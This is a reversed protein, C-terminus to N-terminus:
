LYMCVCVNLGSSPLLLSKGQRLLHGELLTQLDQSSWQSSVHFFVTSLTDAKDDEVESVVDTVKFSTMTTSPAIPSSKKNNGLLHSILSKRWNTSSLAGSLLTLLHTKGVGSKGSLLISPNSNSEFLISVLFSIRILDVTPLLSVSNATYHICKSDPVFLNFIAQESVAASSGALEFTVNKQPSAILKKWPQFSNSSADFYYSFISDTSTPLHVGFEEKSFLKYVLADFKEIARDGGRAIKLQDALDHFDEEDTSDAGCDLDEFREFCGGFAWVYAFVFLNSLLSHFADVSHHHQHRHHHNHDQSVSSSSRLKSGSSALKNPIYIGALTQRGGVDALSDGDEDKKVTYVSVESRLALHRTRLVLSLLGSLISCLTRVASIGPVASSLESAHLKLFELGPDM